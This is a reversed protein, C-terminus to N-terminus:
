WPTTPAPSSTASKVLPSSLAVATVAISACIAAVSGTGPASVDNFTSVNVESPMAERFSETTCGSVTWTDIISANPSTTRVDPCTMSNLLSTAFMEGSFPKATVVSPIAM